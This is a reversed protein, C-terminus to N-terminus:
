RYIGRILLVVAPGPSMSWTRRRSRSTTAPPRAKRAARAHPYMTWMLRVINGPVSALMAIGIGPAGVPGLQEPQHRHPDHHHHCHHDGRGSRHDQEKGADGPLPLDAVDGGRRGRHKGEPVEQDPREVGRDRSDRLPLQM